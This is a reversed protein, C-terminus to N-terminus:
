MMLLLTNYFIWLIKVKLSLRVWTLFMLFEVKNRVTHHESIVGDEYQVPMKFGAFDVIKGGISEHLDSLILKKM